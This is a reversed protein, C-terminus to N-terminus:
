LSNISNQPKIDDGSAYKGNDLGPDLYIFVRRIFSVPKNSTYWSPENSKYKPKTGNIAASQSDLVRYFERSYGHNIIYDESTAEEPTIIAFSPLNLILVFIIALFIKKM